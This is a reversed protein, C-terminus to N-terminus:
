IVCSLAFRASVITLRSALRGAIRMRIARRQDLKKPQIQFIRKSIHAAVIMNHPAANSATQHRRATRVKNPTEERFKPRTKERGM